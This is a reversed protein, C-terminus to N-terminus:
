ETGPKAKWLRMRWDLQCSTRTRTAGGASTITVNRRITDITVPASVTIDATLEVTDNLGLTQGNVPQGDFLNYLEAATGVQHTGALANGAAVLVALMAVRAKLSLNM